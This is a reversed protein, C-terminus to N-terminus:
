GFGHAQACLAHVLAKDAELFNVHLGECPLLWQVAQGEAGRPEGDFRQVHFFHVRVLRETYDHEVTQWYVCDQVRVCLEEWLERCLAERLTEEPEVKGGPFEWYGGLPSGMPRQAALYRGERWLIGAVVDIRFDPTNM